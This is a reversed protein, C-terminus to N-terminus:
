VTKRSAIDPPTLPLWCRFCAGGRYDPDADLWGGHSQVIRRSLYLGLGLGPKASNEGGRTYKDFVKRALEPALGPGHDIIRWLVGPRKEHTSAEISIDISGPAPAYKLANDLLNRLVVVLLAQEGEVAPPNGIRTMCTRRRAEDGSEDILELTLRDLEIREVKTLWRGTMIRDETLCAQLTTDMRRVSGEIRQYRIQRPEGPQPDLLRLSQMAASVVAIPTRLEHAIMALFRTQDDRILREREVAEQAQIRLQNAEAVRMHVSFNFLLLYILTMLQNGNLVWLLFPGLGVLGAVNLTSVGVYMGLAAVDIWGSRGRQRLLRRFVFPLFLYTPLPLFMLIPATYSYLGFPVSAATIFGLAVGILMVVNLIPHYRPIELLERLFFFIMGTSLGVLVGVMSGALEPDDPLLYQATFGHLTLALLQVLLVMVGFQLHLPERIALWTILSLLACAFLLGSQLGFFLYERQVAPAFDAEQWLQLIAAMSSTSRLRLYYVSTGEPVTLRFAFGRYEVERTSFPLLDGSRHERMEGHGDPEYLRLDDLYTPLVDLIWEVPATGSRDLTFRLWYVDRVYGAGLNGPLPAFKEQTEPAAVQGIDLKGGKDVLFSLQGSDLSFHRTKGDLVLSQPGAAALLAGPCSLCLLLAFLIRAFPVM